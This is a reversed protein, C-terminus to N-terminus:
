QVIVSCCTLGAEAKALESQDVDIIEFGLNELIKRTGKFAIPCIAVNGFCMVNASYPEAPDVHIIHHNPFLSEDIWNPNILLLDDRLVAIATKLHLCHAVPVGIVEYGFPQLIKSFQLIAEENTRGSIGVFVKKGLVLVDGGDITGPSQIEALERYEKLVDAMSETEPQRSVAGPRTIIGVEPFVVATDEVFVADALEPTEKLRHITFGVSKLAEEYALHQERAKAIDIPKRDLHTLECDTLKPSIERTIAIPRSQM